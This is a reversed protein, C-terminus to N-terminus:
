NCTIQGSTELAAIYADFDVGALSFTTEEGNVTATITGDENDCYEIDGLEGADCTICNRNDEANDDDKKCSALTIIAICVPLLIRKKM